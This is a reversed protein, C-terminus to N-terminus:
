CSFLTLLIFHSVYPFLYLDNWPNNGTLTMYFWHSQTPPGKQPVLSIVVPIHDNQSGTGWGFIIAPRESPNPSLPANWMTPSNMYPSAFPASRDFYRLVEAVLAESEIVPIKRTAPHYLVDSFDKSKAFNMAEKVHELTIM